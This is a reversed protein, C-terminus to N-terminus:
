RDIGDNGTRVNWARRRQVCRGDPQAGGMTRTGDQALVGSETPGKVGGALPRWRIHSSAPVGRQPEAIASTAAAASTFAALLVAILTRRTTVYWPYPELRVMLPRPRVARQERPDILDRGHLRDEDVEDRWAIPRPRSLLMTSPASRLSTHTRLSLEWGRIRAPAATATPRRSGPVSTSCITVAMATSVRAWGPKRTSSITATKASSTMGDARNRPRSSTGARTSSTTASAATSPTRASARTSSTTARTGTSSTETQNGYLTDNGLGGYIDDVGALGWVTDNGGLGCIVDNGNTGSLRDVGETGTITCAPDAAAATPVVLALSLALCGAALLAFRKM